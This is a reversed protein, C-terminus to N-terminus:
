SQYLLLLCSGPVTYCYGDIGSADGLCAGPWLQHKLHDRFSAANGSPILRNEFLAKNLNELRVLLNHIDDHKAEDGEDSYVTEM